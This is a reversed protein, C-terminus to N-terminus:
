REENAADADHVDHQHAHGFASALDAHAHRHAGLRMVDQELKEDFREGQRHHAAKAADSEPNAGAGTKGRSEPPGHQYSRVDHDYRHHEARKNPHTEAEIRRSLRRAEIGDFREPVLSSM